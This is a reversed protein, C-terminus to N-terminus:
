EKKKREIFLIWPKGDCLVRAHTGSFHDSSANLFSVCRSLFFFIHSRLISFNYFLVYVAHRCGTLMEIYALWRLPTCTRAVGYAIWSEAYVCMMEGQGICVVRVGVLACMRRAAVTISCCMWVVAVGQDGGYVALRHKAIELASWVCM